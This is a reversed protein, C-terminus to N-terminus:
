IDVFRRPAQVPFPQRWCGNSSESVTANDYLKSPLSNWLRSGAIALWRDGFPTTHVDYGHRDLPTPAHQRRLHAPLLRGSVNTCQRISLSPWSLSSSNSENDYPWGFLATTVSDAHHSWPAACWKCTSCGRQPRNYAVCCQAAIFCHMITLAFKTAKHALKLPMSPYSHCQLIRLFNINGPSLVM